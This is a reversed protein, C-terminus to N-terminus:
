QYIKNWLKDGKKGVIEGYNESNICIIEDKTNRFYEIGNIRGILECEEEYSESSSSENDSNELKKEEPEKKSLYTIYNLPEMQTIDPNDKEIHRV